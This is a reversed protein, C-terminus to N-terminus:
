GCVCNGDFVVFELIINIVNEGLFLLQFFLVSLVNKNKNENRKNKKLNNNRVIFILRM